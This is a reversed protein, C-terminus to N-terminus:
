QCIKSKAIPAAISVAGEIQSQAWRALERLEVRFNKEFAIKGTGKCVQCDHDSLTNTGRIRTKGHGDCANCRGDRWWALCAKAMDQAAFRNVKVKLSRAKKWIMDELIAVIEGSERNDGALLRSLSVSLPVEKSAIAYGYLVDSDSMTSLPDTKLNKTCVASAYRTQISM